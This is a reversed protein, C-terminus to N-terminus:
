SGPLRSTTAPAPGPSVACTQESGKGPAPAFVTQLLLVCAVANFLVHVLIPGVLGQTRFALFGLFLSLVFLPVPTPWVPSHLVAFLISTAYVAPIAGPVPLLRWALAEVFPLGASLLLVFLAAAWGHRTSQEAAVVLALLAVIFPTRRDKAALPQLLGRFFLEELLPATLLASVLVAAITAADPRERMAQGLPHERPPGGTQARHVLNCLHHLLLVGPVTCLWLLYGTVVQHRWRALTLGLQYPQAASLYRPLLLMAALALPAALVSVWVARLSESKQEWGSFFMPLLQHVLSPGLLFAGLFVAVLDAGSWPVDRRRQPPLLPGPRLRFWVVGIPLGAVVAVVFWGALARLLENL